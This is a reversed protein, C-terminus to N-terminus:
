AEYWLAESIVPFQQEFIIKAQNAITRHEWQTGPDTRLDIYHIWSRLTGNMYIRTPSCMPLHRRATEKAVGMELMTQYLEYGEKIHKYTLEELLDIQEDNLDDISNQRNRSDQRRFKPIKAQETEAYRQSFEQFSFSRHRIIQASIDRQTHIELCMNAMEFPSWHKHKILYKLLRPGTALNDENQPASVRATKVILREAEPTVWLLRTADILKMM